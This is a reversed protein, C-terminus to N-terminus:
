RRAKKVSTWFADYTELLYAASGLMSELQGDARVFWTM